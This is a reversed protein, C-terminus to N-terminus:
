LGLRQMHRKATNEQRILLRCAGAEVPQYDYLSVTALADATFAHFHVQARHKLSRVGPMLAAEVDVISVAALTDPPVVTQGRGVECADIGALNLAVRSGSVVSEESSGHTQLGRVRM